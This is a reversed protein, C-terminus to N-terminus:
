SPRSFDAVAFQGLRSELLLFMRKFLTHTCKLSPPGWVRKEELERKMTEQEEMDLIQNGDQDFRSFAESIEHDDHGM